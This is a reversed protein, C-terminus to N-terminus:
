ARSPAEVSRLRESMLRMMRMGVSPAQDVLATFSRADAVLLETDTETTITASRPAHELLAMEGFFDGATLTGVIHGDITTTATGDVIVYFENGPEGERVLVTGAPREIEDFLRALEALEDRTCAGFLHLKSLVEIKHDRDKHRRM